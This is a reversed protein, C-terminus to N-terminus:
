WIIILLEKYCHQSYKRIRRNNLVIRDFYKIKNQHNFTHSFQFLEFGQALFMNYFFIEYEDIVCTDVIQLLEIRPRQGTSLIGRMFLIKKSTTHHHTIKSESIHGCLRKNLPSITAGVYFPKDTRPDVLCYINAM